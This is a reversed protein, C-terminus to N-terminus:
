NSDSIDTEKKSVHGGTKQRIQLEKKATDQSCSMESRGGEREIVEVYDLM